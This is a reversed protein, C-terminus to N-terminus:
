HRSPYAGNECIQYDLQLDLRRTPLPALTPLLWGGSPSRGFKTGIVSALATSTGSLIEGRCRQYGSIMDTGVFADIQGIFARQDWWRRSELEEASRFASLDTAALVYPVEVEDTTRLGEIGPVAAAADSVAGFAGLMAGLARSVSRGHDDPSPEDTVPLLHGNCPLVCWPVTSSASPYVRGRIEDEPIEGSGPYTGEIAIYWGVEETPAAIPEIDPLQFETRMDGGFRDGLLSFMAPHEAISMSSGDCRRWGRPEYGTAFLRLEGQHPM